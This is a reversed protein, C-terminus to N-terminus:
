SPTSTSLDSASLLYPAFRASLLPDGDPKVMGSVQIDLTEVLNSGNLKIGDQTPLQALYLIRAV